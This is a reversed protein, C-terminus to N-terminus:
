LYSVIEKQLDLIKKSDIDRPYELPNDVMKTLHSPSTSGLIGIKTSLYAAESANHTVFLVSQNLEAIMELFRERLDRATIEDLSSFPEDMLLIDPEIALARVISVRQKMGGSLQSPYMDKTDGLGVLDLYEEIRENHEEKPVGKNELALRINREVTYWDLLRDEQFVYGISDRDVTVTGTNIDTMGAICKLLTSKGCGSKGLLCLFDGEKITLDVDELVEEVSGDSNRYSKTLNDVQCVVEAEAPPTDFNPDEMNHSNKSQVM